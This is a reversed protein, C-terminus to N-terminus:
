AMMATGVYEINDCCGGAEAGRLPVHRSRVSLVSLAEEGHCGVGQQSETAKGEVDVIGIRGGQVSRCVVGYGALVSVRRELQRALTRGYVRWDRFLALGRADCGGQGAM